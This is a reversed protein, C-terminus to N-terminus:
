TLYKVKNRGKETISPKLHNCSYGTLAPTGFPEISKKNHM